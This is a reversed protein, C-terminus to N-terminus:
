ANGYKGDRQAEFVKGRIIKIPQDLPLPVASGPEYLTYQQFDLGVLELIERPTLEPKPSVAWKTNVRFALVLEIGFHHSTDPKRLYQWLPQDLDAIPPGEEGHQLDHLKDIPPNPPPKLQEHSEDLGRELVELVPAAHDLLLEFPHEHSGIVRVTVRIKGKEAEQHMESM